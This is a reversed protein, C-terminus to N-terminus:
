EVARLEGEDLAPPQLVDLRRQHIPLVARHLQFGRDRGDGRAFSRLRTAPSGVVISPRDARRGTAFATEHPSARARRLNVFPMAKGCARFCPAVRRPATTKWPQHITSTANRQKATLVPRM